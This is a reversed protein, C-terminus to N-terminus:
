IEKSILKFERGGGQYYRSFMEYYELRLTQIGVILGELCMVFLNGVIAVVIGANGTMEVLTMVVLMMGAHSLVFGGVRLYSMSNTVFSLFIEFVEFVAETFYGGWGQHPTLGKGEFLQYLPEKMLFIIAPVLVFPIMFQPKIINYNFVLMGALAFVAYTYMIFGTIGNQSFLLEAWDKHKVALSMNIIMTILILVAGIAVASILLTMTSSSAMVEFLKERVGFLSQHIPNLIHENGFVSGFLFGFVSSTIGIRGVVGALAMKPKLKELIFGGIMLVLGQGLDGFMIGFLLCYTICVFTTPDMDTYKPLSYMKVFMEFPKVFWNNKLLTPASLGKVESPDIVNFSVDLGEFIAKYKDIDKVPIFGSLVYKDNIIGVYKYLKMLDYRYELFAVMDDVRDAYSQIIKKTDIAPIKIEEFFLSELIRRTQKVYTNSTVYSVWHYKGNKYLETISFTNNDHLDLKKYSEITLRGFGFSIYKCSKIDEFGVSRLKELAISDEETLSVADNQENVIKFQQELEETFSNIEDVTYKKFSEKHKIKYGASHCLNRIQNLADSYLTDEALTRDGNEQDIWSTAIEGHLFDSDASKILVEKYNEKSAITQIFKMKVISM